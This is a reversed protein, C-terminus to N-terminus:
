LEFMEDYLPFHTETEVKTKYNQFTQFRDEPVINIKVFSDCKRNTGIPVLNKANLIELKLTNNFFFCHISLVGHPNFPSKSIQQQMQYRDKYYQHILNPTNLGYRELLFDLQKMRETLEKSEVNDDRCKFVDQLTHFIVRLNTFFGPSQQTELSKQILQSLVDLVSQWMINKSAEFDPEYLDDRLTSLSDEIYVFLRDGIENEKKSIDAGELMLKRISPVMQTISSQILKAIRSRGHSLVSAIMKQLRANDLSKNGTLEAIMRQIRQSIYNINGCVICVELPVKFIGLNKMGSSKEVRDAISDFYIVAFRCIDGSVHNAIHGSEDANPWKVEEWFKKVSYLITLVDVASSSNKLAGHVPKLNDM